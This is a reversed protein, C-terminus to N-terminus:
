QGWSGTSGGSCHSMQGLKLQSVNVQVQPSRSSCGDKRNMHIKILKEAGRRELAAEEKWQM